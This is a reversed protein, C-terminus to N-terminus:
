AAASTKKAARQKRRRERDAKRRENRADTAPSRGWESRRRFDFDELMHQDGMMVLLKDVLDLHIYREGRYRNLGGHSLGLHDELNMATGYHEICRNILEVGMPDGVCLCLPDVRMSEDDQMKAAPDTDLEAHGTAYMRYGDIKGDV